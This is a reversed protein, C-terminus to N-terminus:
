YRPAPTRKWGERAMLKLLDVKPRVPEKLITGNSRLFMGIALALVTDDHKGPMAEARGGDIVMSKLEDIITLDFIEITPKEVTWQILTEGLTDIITKRLAETTWWGDMKQGSPGTKGASRQWLPVLLEKLRKVPYLGPGNTEVGAQCNGFHRAMAAGQECAVTVDLRSHHHAVVMPPITDGNRPDVYGERIIIISHWDGDRGGQQDEGTCCDVSMFYKLGIRPEEFIKTLGMPSDIFTVGGSDQIVFDGIRPAVVKAKREIKELVDISFRLASKQNFAEQITSPYERNLQEISGGCKDVLKQRLWNLQEFSLSFRSQLEHERKDMDRKFASEESVNAFPLFHDPEEFWAVFIKHWGNRNDSFYEFFKGFPGASTSDIAGYSEEGLDYWSGIFGTLPDRGEIIKYYATETSNMGQITGSRNANSSGATVKKYTSKNPFEIDDTQNHEKDGIALNAFGDGWNMTDNEAFTRFIEFIQDSTGAIDGMVAGGRGGFRRLRHYMCGQVGTSAGDKRPKLIIHKCPKRAALCEDYHDFIRQQVVRTKLQPFRM